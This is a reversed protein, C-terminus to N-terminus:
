RQPDLTILAGMKPTGIGTSLDYGPTTPFLGNNNTTQHIGTIDNFFGRANVNYLLYLFPNANGIRGHWLSDHDAIIASWLPSSLSTGGIGFWGSPTGSIQACVSYPTDANGTCYEAYGTYPDADASIDPVERCPKGLAALACNSTGNGYAAYRNTIGPGTQYFPRGWFQSNGGGGAGTNACWFFGPVGGENASANCLNDVNWVTEVGTPYSPNPNADPNFSELSTGGVSTVWPQSPPDDVNVVTTGDSRICDFAGTDGAAGFMSQGQLAMQEFIINEAQVYGAGADNECVGWSSSIVDATDDSAIKTYEDLETQGTYDNPANYVLLHDADPAITLQMEIDADVEIDGAYGNYNAPCEDGAPCIPSLPGGDVTIDVLPAKYGHGYFYDAWAAIDSHQYASLEFVALNVGKGKAEPGLDPAGYISNTQSPTLGNCGPGGGYGYPFGVGNNVLNFLQAATVYPTECGPGSPSTQKAPRVTHPHLRVTNSLGVVGLVAPALAGPLQVEQANSYYTIGRPNRYSHISTRFTSEVLSSPGSAQLLFPSSTQEVELGSGELYNVIATVQASDPAFLSYFEGKGLWHQYNNSNPNYLDALMGSLESANSPALLIEVTMQASSFGGMDVDTTPKLSGPIASFGNEAAVCNAASFGLFLTLAVSACCLKRANSAM